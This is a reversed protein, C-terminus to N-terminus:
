KLEVHGGGDVVPLTFYFISGKGPESIVGIKGNHRHIIEHCIFLGIGFGPFTKENKGEVRYFRDFIKEQDNKNIGIGMDEVSVIIKHNDKISTVKIDTAEPSYKIANTLFNTLVQGIRERDGCVTIEAEGFFAIKFTLNIHSIEEIVEAITKNLNFNEKQLYLNGSKIKSLDLMDSILTTLKVIQRDVNILSKTLFPDKNDEYKSLLLQIYAKISTIPTKLEHSAISIFFDKEEEQKKLEQIDTSSGVWM